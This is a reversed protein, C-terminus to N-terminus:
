HKRRVGYSKKREEVVQAYVLGAEVQGARVYSEGNVDQSIGLVPAGLGPNNPIRLSLTTAIAHRFRHPGFGKGFRKQTLRFLRSEMGAVTLPRGFRSIWFEQYSGSGVLAPRAVDLYHQIYPTLDDPLNFHDAKPHKNQDPTLEIRYRDGSWFIEEGARLLHMARRRRGRAAFMAIMLGDRYTTRWVDPDWDLDAAHMMDLGWQYLVGSDPVLLHRKAKPLLSYVTVGGLRRIWSTDQGPSIIKVAMELEQFRGIITYDANGVQRLERFYALRRSHTARELAPVAHDLWGHSQLFFLWRGYGRETKSLTPARLTAGYHPMEDDDYPDSPTCSRAWAVRDSEPWQEIPVSLRPQVSRAM